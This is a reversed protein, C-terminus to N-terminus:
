RCLSAISLTDLPQLSRALAVQLPHDIKKLLSLESNLNQVIRRNRKLRQGDGLPRVLAVRDLGRTWFPRKSQRLRNAASEALLTNTQFYNAWTRGDLFDDLAFDAPIPRVLVETPAQANTGIHRTNEIFKIEDETHSEIKYPGMSVSNSKLREGPRGFDAPHVISLFVSGLQRFLTDAKKRSVTKFRFSNPGDVRLTRFDVGASM